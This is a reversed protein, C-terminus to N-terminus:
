LESLAETGNLKTKAAPETSRLSLIQQCRANCIRLTPVWLFLGALILVTLIPALVEDSM